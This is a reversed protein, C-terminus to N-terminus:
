SNRILRTLGKLVKGNMMDLLANLMRPSLAGGGMLMLSRLPMENLMHSMMEATTSENGGSNFNQSMGREVLKYIIRGLFTVRIESLMSNVHFPREAPLPPVTYGLLAEYEKDTPNFSSDSGPKYWSELATKGAASPIFGSEVNLDIRARIDRSSSGILLEFAGAEIQWDSSETDWYAFSRKDLKFVATKTEGPELFLKTFGKLEKEPRFTTSERDCVYLQVIEAGAVSGSNTIDVSLSLEDDAKFSEASLAPTGYDFSTYSLGFGFPFLVEKAASDFWRYGVYLSERYEVQRAHGPFFGSSACDSLKLPFTEALKGSPNVEGFLIHKAALAGAQGGLYSELLADCSDLWPMEVPAGNQLVVIIKKGTKHLLRLLRVQNEPIRLHSRDFGESEQFEPLGAFMIVADAAEAAALAEQELVTDNQEDRSRWGCTYTFSFGETIDKELVDIFNELRWPNILSSGNGQYRPKQAFEGIVAIHGKKELPLVGDDNKLLVMSEEAARCALQHQEDMDCNDNQTVGPLADAILSLIREVAKDLAAPDLSGNKIAEVIKRDNIGESGPMELDMGVRIGTVRDNTAGWDSVVAGKFDWENRLIGTLLKENDSLYTGNLKNYSCMVTWPQSKKVAIEFATLYIERLCREDVVSNIVMRGFEQSNAAYHKISTGVGQSQVGRIFAAALEGSLFPDESFYEFNRGCLPSRKINVGPGLLVAVNERRSESGLARGVDNLLATDWSSALTVATPFCTAPLSDALGVHDSSGVQKRLGHPGDTVMISPIGLRDINQLEWFNRGSCLSAKEELTMKGILETIETGNIRKM